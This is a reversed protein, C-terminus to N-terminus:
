KVNGAHRRSWRLLFVPISFFFLTGMGLGGSYLLIRNWGLARISAPPIFGALMAAVSTLLGLLCVAGIGWLGGPIRYPRPLEPRRVRLMFAASFMLIYMIMYMQASLAMFVWFAGGITPMFFVVLSILSIITAQVLLITVPANWRNRRALVPPLLGEAAVQLIGKSPGLLWTFVTTVAGICLMLCMPMTLVPVGLADFMRSFAEGAGSAMSLAGPPVVVAIALAGAASAAIIIVSSALLALPYTRCPNRVDTIHLATMDIGALSVMMGALLMWDNLNHLQPLAAPWSFPIAPARGSFLWLAALVVILISPLITGLLAGVSSVRAYLKIGFLNVITCGWTVLLIAFYVYLRNDALAPDFMYAATTAIFTLVTGYWPLSNFWQMSVTLFGVTPNFATKGWLYLGGDHPLASAMEASVLATPIFFCAASVAIFFVIAYGYEAQAPYNVISLVAAVNLMTLTVVGLEASRKM